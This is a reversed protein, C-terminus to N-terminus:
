NTAVRIAVHGDQQAVVGSVYVSLGSNLMPLILCMKINQCIQRLYVYRPSQSPPLRRRTILFKSYGGQELGSRLINEGNFKSIQASILDVNQIHITYYFRRVINCCSCYRKQKEKRNSIFNTNLYDQYDVLPSSHIKDWQEPKLYRGCWALVSIIYGFHPSM